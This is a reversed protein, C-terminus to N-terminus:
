LTMALTEPIRGGEIYSRTDGIITRAKGQLLELVCVGNKRSKNQPRVTIRLITGRSKGAPRGTFRKPISDELTFGELIGNARREHIHNIGRIHGAKAALPM